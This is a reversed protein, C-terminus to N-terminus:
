SRKSVPAPFFPRAIKFRFIIAIGISILLLVGGLAREVGMGVALVADDPLALLGGVMIVFGGFCLLVSVFLLELYRLFSAVFDQVSDLSLPESASTSQSPDLEM